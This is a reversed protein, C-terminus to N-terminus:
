HQGSASTADIDIAVIYRHQGQATVQEVEIARVAFQPNSRPNPWAIGIGYTLVGEFDGAPAWRVMRVLGLGAPPQTVISPAGSAAHGQAQHFTVQLVGDGALPIARGSPDSVLKSVFRIQYSPFATSFTFSMRDYPRQGTGGPHDGAGIAIVQPLPPVPYSHQINAPTNVDNPWHWPYSVRSSLVTEAAGPTNVPAAATPSPSAATSATAPTSPTSPTPPHSTGSPAAGKGCASLAVLLLTLLIGPIVTRIPRM